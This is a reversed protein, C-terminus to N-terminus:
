AFGLLNDLAAIISQLQADGRRRDAVMPRLRQWSEAAHRMAELQEFESEAISRGISALQAAEKSWGHASVVAIASDLWSMLAVRRQAAASELWVRDLQDPLCHLHRRWAMMMVRFAEIGIHVAAGDGSEIAITASDVLCTRDNTGNVVPQTDAGARDIFDLLEDVDAITALNVSFFDDLHEYPSAFRAAASVVYTMGLRPMAETDVPIHGPTITM